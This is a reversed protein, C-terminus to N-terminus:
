GNVRNRIVEFSENVDFPNVGLDTIYGAKSAKVKDTKPKKSVPIWEGDLDFKIANQKMAFKLTDRNVKQLLAGGMGFVINEASWGTHQMYALIKEIASYEVGDGQLIRFYDPLVKYGKSNYSVGVKSELIELIKMVVQIPEGSDPRIVFRGSKSKVKELLEGAIISEVANFIDYSDSVVSYIKGEGGFQDIMNSYADIERSEGWSTITSHEAAPVSYGWVTNTNYYKMIAVLAEVTDSGSFSLLHAMGGLEASEKSSVGRAGFDHLAFNLGGLKDDDVTNNWYNRMMKKCTYSLTAVTTPYWIARLLSTELYSTLWPLRPDLNEIQLLPTGVPVVSGEPLAKISVPLRGSYKELIYQWDVKNFPVGHNKAFWEMEVIDATTIEKSLYNEIWAKLGFFVIDTQPFGASIGRAEIYSSVFKTQPPYQLFHSFKYSDTSAILNTTM